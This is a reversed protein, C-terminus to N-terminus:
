LRYVIKKDKNYNKKLHRSILQRQAGKARDELLTRFMKGPNSSKRGVPSVRGSREGPREIQM